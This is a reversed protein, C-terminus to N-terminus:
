EGQVIMVAFAAVKVTPLGMLGMLTEYHWTLYAIFTEEDLGDVMDLATHYPSCGWEQWIAYFIFEAAIDHADDPSGSMELDGAHIARWMDRLLRHGEAAASIRLAGSDPHSELLSLLPSCTSKLAVLHRTNM